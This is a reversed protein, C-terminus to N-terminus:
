RVISYQAVRKGNTTKVMDTRIPYGQGRLDFIRGSARLCGFRRLMSLPTLKEGRQLAALIRKNQSEASTDEVQNKLQEM